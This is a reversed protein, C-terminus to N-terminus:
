FEFNLLFDLIGMVKIGEETQWSRTTDTTVIIKSFNDSVELFPRVEQLTKERNGMKFASQIYVRKDGQNCVFDIELQKREGEERTEVVGVDVNFGRMLLENYIINEMLHNPEQQRFNLRANRLGVDAFYYKSPTLIYKKGKIDYRESKEIMFADMLMDLYSSITNISVDKIGRSAFARSLKLPNNLSGVSSALINVLTDLVDRRQINNRECIDLLYVTDFLKTLYQSKQESTKQTLIFPLGGYILYDEWAENETGNYAASYERFSLPFIRIEDGRGRFETIIDSSLFRSNSGTVYIDVNPIHLLGNLVEEFHPVLQIEDLLVYYMNKSDSIKQRIYKNLVEPERLYQNEYAELDIKIIHEELVGSDLLHKKFIPDLLYSKGCRRIGTIIKVLGNEKRDILKKLYIDRRIELM